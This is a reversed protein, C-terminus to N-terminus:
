NETGADQVQYTLVIRSGYGFLQLNKSYGKGFFVQIILDRFKLCHM